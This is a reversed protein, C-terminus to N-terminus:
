IRIRELLFPSINHPNNLNEPYQVGLEFYGEYSEDNYSKMFDKNFEFIDKVWKFDNVPLKQSMAGRYLNNVDWYKLDPM